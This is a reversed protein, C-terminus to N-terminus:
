KEYNLNKKFKRILYYIPSLYVNPFFLNSLIHKKFKM